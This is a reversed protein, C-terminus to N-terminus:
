HFTAAQMVRNAATCPATATFDGDITTLMSEDCAALVLLVFVRGSPMAVIM